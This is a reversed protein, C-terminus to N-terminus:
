DNEKVNFDFNQYIGKSNLHLSLRFLVFLTNQYTYFKVDSSIQLLSINTHRVIETIFSELFLM